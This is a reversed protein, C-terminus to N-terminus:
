SRRLGKKKSEVSTKMSFMLSSRESFVDARSSRKKAKGILTPRILCDLAESQRFGGRGIVLAHGKM